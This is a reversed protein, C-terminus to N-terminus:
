DYAGDLFPGPTPPSNIYEECTNEMKIEIETKDFETEAM